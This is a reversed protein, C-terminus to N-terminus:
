KSFPLLCIQTEFLLAGHRLLVHVGIEERQGSSTGHDLVLRRDIKARVNIIELMQMIVEKTPLTEKIASRAHVNHLM